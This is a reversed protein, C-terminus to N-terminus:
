YLVAQAVYLCLTIKSDSAGRGGNRGGEILQGAGM